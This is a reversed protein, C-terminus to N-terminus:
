HAFCLFSAGFFIYPLTKKHENIRPLVLPLIYHTTTTTTTITTASFLFSLLLSSPFSQARSYLQFFFINLVQTSYSISTEITKDVVNLITHVMVHRTWLSYLVTHNDTIPASDYSYHTPVHNYPLSVGHEKIVYWLITIIAFCSFM